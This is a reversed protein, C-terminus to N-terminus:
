TAVETPSKFVLSDPQSQPDNQLVSYELSGCHPPTGLKRCHWKDTMARSSLALSSRQRFLTLSSPPKQSFRLTGSNTRCTPDSLSLVAANAPQSLSRNPLPGRPTSDAM